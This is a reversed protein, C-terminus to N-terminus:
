TVRRADLGPLLKKNQPSGDFKAASHRPLKLSIKIKQYCLLLVSNSADAHVSPQVNLVTCKRQPKGDHSPLPLNLTPMIITYVQAKSDHRLCVAATAGTKRVETLLHQNM